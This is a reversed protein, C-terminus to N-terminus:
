PPDAGYEDPYGVPCRIRCQQTEQPYSPLHGLHVHDFALAIAFRHLFITGTTVASSARVEHNLHEIRHCAARDSHVSTM